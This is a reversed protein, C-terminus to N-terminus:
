IAPRRDKWPMALEIQAALQLLTVEDGFRGAFMSGIPLNDATRHLPVTMAPLGTINYMSTFCSAPIVRSGAKPGTSVDLLPASDRVSRSIAHTVSLGM